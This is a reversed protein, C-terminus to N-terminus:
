LYFIHITNYLIFLICTNMFALYNTNQERIVIVLWTIICKLLINVLAVTSNFNYHTKKFEICSLGFINVLFTIPQWCEFYM